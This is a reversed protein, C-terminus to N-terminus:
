PADGHPVPTRVPAGRMYARQLVGDIAAAAQALNRQRGVRDSGRRGLKGRLTEDDLLLDILGALAANDGPAALMGGIGEEVVDPVGRVRGAVAATGAAQAELLAMGYAEHVAPWVYLDCAAYIAALADAPREGAFVVRDGLPALAAEVPAREPGDGVVILTWGDSKVAALVEGLAEYSEMKPGRRMMAVALLWTRARDLCLEEALAARHSAAEGAAATFPEADLFPPLYISEAPPAVLPEVMAKDLRTLNIVADAAAISREVAAHGIAWPGAARKPAYSAEAIVYPIAFHAAVTPGIWDPAKYYVHYTFWLDPPTDIAGIIRKAEAEAAERIAGQAPTGCYTRMESAVFVDHRAAELAAVILRGMRRDGSPTPHGPAKLPAYFAIRM